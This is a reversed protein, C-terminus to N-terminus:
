EILSAVQRKIVQLQVKIVQCEYETFLESNIMDKEMKLVNEIMKIENILEIKCKERERKTM